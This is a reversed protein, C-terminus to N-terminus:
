EKNIKLGKKKKLSILCMAYGSKYNLYRFDKFTQNQWKKNRFNKNIPKTERLTKLTKSM